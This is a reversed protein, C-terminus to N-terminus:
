CSCFIPSALSWSCSCELGGAKLGPRTALQYNFVPWVAELMCAALRQVVCLGWYRPGLLVKGPEQTNM